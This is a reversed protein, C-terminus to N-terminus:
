ALPVRTAAAVYADSSGSSNSGVTESGTATILKYSVLVSAGGLASSYADLNVYGTPATWSTVVDDDLHVVCFLLDGKVVSGGLASTAYASSSGNESNLYVPIGANRFVAYFGSGERTGHFSYTENESGTFV